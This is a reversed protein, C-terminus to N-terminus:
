EYKVSCYSHSHSRSNSSVGISIKNNLGRREM